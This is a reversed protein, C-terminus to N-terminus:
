EDGVGRRRGGWGLVQGDDVEGDSEDDISGRTDFGAHVAQHGLADVRRRQRNAPAVDREVQRADRDFASPNWPMPM